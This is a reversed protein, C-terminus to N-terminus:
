GMRHGPLQCRLASGRSQSISASSGSRSISSSAASAARVAAVGIAAAFGRLSSSAAGPSSQALRTPSM